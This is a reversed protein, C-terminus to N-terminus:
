YGKQRLCTNYSFEYAQIKEIGRIEEAIPEQLKELAFRNCEMKADKESEDIGWFVGAILSGAILISVSLILTKRM